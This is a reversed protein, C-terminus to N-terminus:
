WIDWLDTLFMFRLEYDNIYNRKSIFKSKSFFFWYTYKETEQYKAHHKRTVKMLRSAIQKCIVSFKIWVSKYLVAWLATMGSIVQKLCLKM